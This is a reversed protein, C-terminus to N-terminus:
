MDKQKDTLEIGMKVLTEKNLTGTVKVGNTEQFKKIANRDEDSLKGTETTKLMKQAQMVQDKTARFIPKRPKKETTEASKEPKVGGTAYSNPSAPIDKQKDTLEINMKELTARNLTGTQKLGNAEQFKKIAERDTDSLKGSEELKLMKQVQMVQDKTARFVPPKKPKAETAATANPTPKEQAFAGLSLLLVVFIITSLKKM